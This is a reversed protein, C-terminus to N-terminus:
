DLLILFRLGSIVVFLLGLSDSWIPAFFVCPKLFPHHPFCWWSPLRPCELGKNGLPSVLKVVIYPGSYRQPFELFWNLLQLACALACGLLPEVSLLLVTKPTETHGHAERGLGACHSQSSAEWVRPVCVSSLVDLGTNQSTM